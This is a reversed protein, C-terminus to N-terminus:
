GLLTSAVTLVIRAGSALEDSPNSCHKRTWCHWLASSYALRKVYRILLHTPLVPPSSIPQTMASVMAAASPLM